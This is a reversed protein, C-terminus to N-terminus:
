SPSLCPSTSLVSTSPSVGPPLTISPMGTLTGAVKIQETGPALVDKLEAVDSVHTWTM